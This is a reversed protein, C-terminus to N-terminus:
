MEADHEDDLEFDDQYDSYSYLMDEADDIKEQLSAIEDYSLNDDELLKEYLMDLEERLGQEQLHTPIEAEPINKLKEDLRM